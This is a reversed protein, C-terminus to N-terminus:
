DATDIGAVLDNFAGVEKPCYTQVVLREYTVADTTILKERRGAPNGKLLLSEASGVGDGLVDCIQPADTGYLSEAVEVTLRPAVGASHAAKVLKKADSKEEASHTSACGAVSLLLACVVVGVRPARLSERGLRFSMAFRGARAQSAVAAFSDAEHGTSDDSQRAPATPTPAMTSRPSPTM